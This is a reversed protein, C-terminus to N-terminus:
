KKKNYKKIASYADFLGLEGAKSLDAIGADTNGLNVNAIGRNYYAEALKPDLKIASDYDEIARAFDKNEAHLNGRDFYLYANKPNLKIAMDLDSIAGVTKLRIDEGRSADYENMRDQCVARQWYALSSTSDTQIYVTLDSIADAYNQVVSHAVARQMILGKDKNLNRSADIASTLSDILSFIRGSEEETLSKVGCRVYLRHSPQQEFNFREVDNDYAQYSKVINDYPSFSLMFMPQLAIDVNRNQVRGRYSTSYEHEVTNEDVVVLQNYKDFDIESKKRVEHQKKKSWRQQRGYHKDLQAKFIRFEDQEAKATLGIRRYCRARNNLGAWFNPYQDIIKSYDRIAGYLDGTRELLIARNYIAMVNDPEMSIVYNFDEIARNDDGVQVRLQGRNYHALFNNPDLELAKDYDALAGNLNNINYRALARNVYNAVNTPRLHIAKSLQEDAPKWERQSLSVMARMAWIDGDYPDIELSKDLYKAAEITDKQQMCVEAKLSYSKAYDKWMTMMSDLDANAADYDKKEIKCLVRNFWLGKSYPNFEITKDYDAIAEDFKGQKINCLGRLEFIDPIYPNLRIAETCDKEAGVFDDLYFKAVARLFWPEYLYPKVMIVQNFYQISLVYDEYYLASRGVDILRDTRFQASASVSILFLLFSFLYKRM